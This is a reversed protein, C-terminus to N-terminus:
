AFGQLKSLMKKWVIQSDVCIYECFDHQSYMYRVVSLRSLDVRVLPLLSTSVEKDFHNENVIPGCQFLNCIKLIEVM